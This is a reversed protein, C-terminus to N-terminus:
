TLCVQKRCEKRIRQYLRLWTPVHVFGVEPCEINEVGCRQDCGGCEKFQENQGCANVNSICIYAVVLLLFLVARSM